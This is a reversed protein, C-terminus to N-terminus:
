AALEPWEHLADAGVTDKVLKESLQWLKLGLAPDSAQSSEKGLQGKLMTLEVKEHLSLYGTTYSISVPNTLYVGNWGKKEIEPSTAAYRYTFYASKSLRLLFHSPIGSVVYRLSGARSETWNLSKCPDIAERSPWPIGGEM